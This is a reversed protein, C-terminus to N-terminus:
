DLFDKRHKLGFTEALTKLESDTISQLIKSNMVKVYIEAAKEV